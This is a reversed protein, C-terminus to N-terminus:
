ALLLSNHPLWIAAVGFGRFPSCNHPSTPHDAEKRHDQRRAERGPCRQCSAGV